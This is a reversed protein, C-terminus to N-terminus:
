KQDISFAIDIGFTASTGEFVAPSGLTFDVQAVIESVVDSIKKRTEYEYFEITLKGAGDKVDSVTLFYDFKGLDDGHLPKEAVVHVGQMQISYGIEGDPSRTNLDFNIVYEGSDALALGTLSLVMVALIGIQRVVAERKEVTNRHRVAKPRQRGKGRELGVDAKPPM